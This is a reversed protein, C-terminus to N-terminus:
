KPATYRRHGMRPPPGAEALVVIQGEANLLTRGACSQEPAVIGTVRVRAGPAATPPLAGPRVAYAVGNDGMITACPGSVDRVVGIVETTQPPPPPPAETQCAAVGIVPLLLLFAIKKM